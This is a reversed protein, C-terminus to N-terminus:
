SFGAMAGPNMFDNYAFNNGIYFGVWQLKKTQAFGNINYGANQFMMSRRKLNDIPSVLRGYWGNFNLGM